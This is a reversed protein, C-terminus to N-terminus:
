RPLYLRCGSSVSEETTLTAPGLGLGLRFALRLGLALVQRSQLLLHVPQLSGRPWQSFVLPTRM